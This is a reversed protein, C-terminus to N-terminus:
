LHTRSTMNGRWPEWVHLAWHRHQKLHLNGRQVEKKVGFSQQRGDAVQVTGYRRLEAGCPVLFGLLLDLFGLLSPCTLGRQIWVPTDTFSWIMLVNIEPNMAGVTLPITLMKLCSAARHSCVSGFRHDGGPWLLGPDNRPCWASMKRWLVHNM